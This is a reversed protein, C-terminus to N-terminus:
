RLAGQWNGPSPYGKVSLPPSSESTWNTPPLGLDLAGQDALTVQGSFDLQEQALRLKGDSLVLNGDRWRFGTEVGGLHHDRYSIGDGVVVGEVEVLPYQGSLRAEAAVEGALEPVLQLDGVELGDVTVIFDLERDLGIRGQLDVSGSPGQLSFYDIHLGQSTLVM